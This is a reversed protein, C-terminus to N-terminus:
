LRRYVGDSVSVEGARRLKELTREVYDAPVGEREAYAVIDAATPEPLDELADVVVQKRSRSGGSDTAREGAEAVEDADLGSATLLEEDDVGVGEIDIDAPDLFEGEDSREALMSSRVRAAADSTDTEAFAKLKEFRHRKGCRPCKTTEPRGDVVWLNRCENCGVVSYM